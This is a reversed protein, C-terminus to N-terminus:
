EGPLLADRNRLIRRVQWSSVSYLFPEGDSAADVGPGEVRLYFRADGAADGVRVVFERGTEDELTLTAQPDELGADVPPDAVFASAELETIRTAWTDVSEQDLAEAVNGDGTGLRWVTGGDTPERFVTFRDVVRTEAEVQLDADVTIRTIRRPGLDDPLPQLDAWYPTQQGFYFGIDRDVIFVEPGGAERLYMQGGGTVAKGFLLRALENEEPGEIVAVRAGDDTVEFDEFFEQGTAAIRVKRLNVLADLFGDVREEDAPFLGDGIRVAWGEAGRDVLVTGSAEDGGGSLHIRRSEGALSEAVVPDGAVPSRGARSVTLSGVVYTVLLVVFVASLVILRTRQTM